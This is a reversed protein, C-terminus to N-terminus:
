CVNKLFISKFNCISNWSYWCRPHSWPWISSASWCYGQTTIKISYRNWWLIWTNCKMLRNNFSSWTMTFTVIWSKRYNHSCCEWNFFYHFFIINFSLKDYPWTNCFFLYPTLSPKYSISIKIIDIHTNKSVNAGIHRHGPPFCSTCAQNRNFISKLSLGSM